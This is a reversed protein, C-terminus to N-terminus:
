KKFIEITKEAELKASGLLGAKKKEARRKKAKDPEAADRKKVKDFATMVQKFLKPNRQEARKLKRNNTAEDEKRIRRAEQAVEKEESTLPRGKRVEEMVYEGEFKKMAVSESPLGLDENKPPIYFDNKSSAGKINFNVRSILKTVESECTPCHTLKDDMIRQEIEFEGCSPCSYEYIPM